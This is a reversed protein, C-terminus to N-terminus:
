SARPHTVKYMYVTLDAVVFSMTTANNSTWHIDYAHKSAEIYNVQM